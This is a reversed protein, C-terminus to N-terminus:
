DSNVNQLNIILSDGQEQEDCYVYVDEQRVPPVKRRIRFFTIAQFLLYTVCLSLGLSSIIIIPLFGM